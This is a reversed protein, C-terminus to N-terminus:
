GGQRGIEVPSQAEQKKGRERRSETPSTPMRRDSGIILIVDEGEIPTSGFEEKLHGTLTLVRCERYLTEGLVEVIDQTNFKLALDLWGDPGESTCDLNCDEKGNLPEFPASVDEYSSRLPAVGELRITVPDITTIPSSLKALGIDYSLHSVQQVVSYTGASTEFQINGSLVHGATLVWTPSILTGSGLWGSGWMVGGYPHVDNAFSTYLSNSRDHRTTIASAPAGALVVFLGALALTCVYVKKGAGRSAM